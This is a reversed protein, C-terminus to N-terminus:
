NCEATHRSTSSSKPAFEASNKSKLETETLGIYFVKEALGVYFIRSFANRKRNAIVSTTYTLLSPIDDLPGIIMEVVQGM